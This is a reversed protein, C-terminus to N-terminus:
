APVPEGGVAGCAMLADIDGDRYGAERLIQVSHQGVRPPASTAPTQGYQGNLAVAPGLSKTSGPMGDPVDIVMGAARTQPHELAEGPTNVPGVPVGAAELRRCWDAISDHQLVAEILQELEKVHKVRLQPTAFRPDDQWEPHGLVESIRRWANPNAGGIAIGGDACQYVQYPAILAHATGLRETNRGTSFYTAALWYNQQM